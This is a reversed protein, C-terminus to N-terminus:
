SRHQVAGCKCGEPKIFEDFYEQGYDIVIEEGVAIDKTASIFIQGDQTEAEANPECSHNIYGAINIEPPGDITSEKDVEFLYRTKLTDALKTTIKKGTYEVIFEGKPFDQLAFLGKGTKSKRVEFKAEANKM